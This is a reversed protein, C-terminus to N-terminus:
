ICLMLWWPQTGRKVECLIHVYWLEVPVAPRRKKRKDERGAMGEGRKIKIKKIQPNGHRDAHATAAFEGGERGLKSIEINTHVCRVHEM